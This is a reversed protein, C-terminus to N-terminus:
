YLSRIASKTYVLVCRVSNVARHELAEGKTETVMVVCAGCGGEGCMRKTGKLGPQDRLWENVTLWPSPNTVVHTRGNVTFIVADTSAMKGSLPMCCLHDYVCNMVLM